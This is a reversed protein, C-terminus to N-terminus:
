DTATFSRQTSAAWNFLFFCTAIRASENCWGMLTGAMSKRDKILLPHCFPCSSPICTGTPCVNSTVLRGGSQSANFRFMVGPGKPEGAGNVRWRRTVAIADVVETLHDSSGSHGSACSFLKRDWYMEAWLLNKGDIYTCSQQITSATYLPFQLTKVTTYLELFYQTKPFQGDDPIRFQLFCHFRKYDKLFNLFTHV